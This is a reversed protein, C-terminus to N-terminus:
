QIWWRFYIDLWSVSVVDIEWNDILSGMLEFLRTVSIENWGGPLEDSAEFFEMSDVFELLEEFDFECVLVVLLWGVARGRSRVGNVVLLKAGLVGSEEADAQYTNPKEISKKKGLPSVNALYDILNLRM